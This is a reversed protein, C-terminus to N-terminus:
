DHDAILARAATGAHPFHERGGRGQGPLPHATFDCQNGVSAEGARRAAEADAMDPRLRRDAARDRQQLVAVDDLDVGDHSCKVYLQGVRLQGFTLGFPLWSLGIMCRSCQPFIGLLDPGCDTACDGVGTPRVLFLTIRVDLRIMTANTNPAVGSAVAPNAKSPAGALWSAVIGITAACGPAAFESFFGTTGCAVGSDDM